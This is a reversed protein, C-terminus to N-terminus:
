TWCPLFAVESRLLERSAHCSTRRPPYKSTQFNLLMNLHTSGSDWILGFPRRVTIFFVDFSDLTSCSQDGLPISRVVILQLTARSNVISLDAPDPDLNNIQKDRRSFKKQFIIIEHCSNISFPTLELIAKIRQLHCRSFVFKFLESFCYMSSASSQFTCQPSWM